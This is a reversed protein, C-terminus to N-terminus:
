RLSWLALSCGEDKEKIRDIPEGLNYPAIQLNTRNFQKTHDFRNPVEYQSALLFRASQRFLDLANQVRPPDLHILVHRCLIVDCKPLPQKSIDWATVDARRPVLDFAKYAIRPSLIGEIWHRDGAGADCVSNLGHLFLFNPLAARINAAGDMTSGNGCPTGDVCGGKWGAKFRTELAQETWQLTPPQGLGAM